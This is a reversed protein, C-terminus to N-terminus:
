REAHHKSGKKTVPQGLSTLKSLYWLCSKTHYVLCKWIGQFPVLSVHTLSSLGETSAIGPFCLRQYSLLFEELLCLNKRCDYFIHNSVFIALIASVTVMWSAHFEVNLMKQAPSKASKLWWHLLLLVVVLISLCGKTATSSLTMGRAPSLTSRGADVVFEYLSAIIFAFCTCLIRGVEGLWM